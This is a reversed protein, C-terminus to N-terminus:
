GSAHLLLANGSPEYILRLELDLGVAYLGDAETSCPGSNVGIVAEGGDLWGIAWSELGYVAPDEFDSRSALRLEDGIQAIGYPEGGVLVHASPVECEGSWQGLVAGDPGPTLWAWHGPVALEGGGFEFPGYAPGSVLM